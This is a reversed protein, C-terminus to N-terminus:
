NKSLYLDLFDLLGEEPTVKASSINQEEQKQWKILDPMKKILGSHGAPSMCVDAPTLSSVTAFITENIESQMLPICQYKTATRKFIYLGLNHFFYLVDFKTNLFELRIDELGKLFGGNNFPFVAFYAQIFLGRKTYFTVDLWDKSNKEKIREIVKKVMEEISRANKDLAVPMGIISEVSFNPATKNNNQIKTYTDMADKYTDESLVQRKFADQQGDEKILANTVEIGFKDVVIDPAPPQKLWSKSFKSKIIGKNCLLNATFAEQYLKGSPTEHM